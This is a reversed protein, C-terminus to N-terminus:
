IKHFAYEDRKLIENTGCCAGSKWRPAGRRDRERRKGGNNERAVRGNSKRKRADDDDDDDDCPILVIIAIIKYVNVSLYTGSRKKRKHSRTQERIYLRCYFNNPKSNLTNLKM